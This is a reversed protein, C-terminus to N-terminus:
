RDGVIAKQNVSWAQPKAQFLAKTKSWTDKFFESFRYHNLHEESEWMSYTFFINPDHADQWLELHRCGEFTRIKQKREEFLAEFNSVEEPRFNMQVIRVIM